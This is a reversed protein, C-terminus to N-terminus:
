LSFLKRREALYAEDSIRSWDGGDRLSKAYSEFIRGSLDDEAAAEELVTKSHKALAELVDQPMRRLKM